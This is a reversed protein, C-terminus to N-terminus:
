PLGETNYFFGAYPTYATLLSRFSTPFSPTGFVIQWLWSL